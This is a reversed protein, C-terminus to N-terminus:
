VDCDQPHPFHGESAPCAFDVTEGATSSSGRETKSGMMLDREWHDGAIKMLIKLADMKGMKKMKKTNVKQRAQRNSTPRSIYEFINFPKDNTDTVGATVGSGTPVINTLVDDETRSFKQPIITPQLLRSIENDEPAPASLAPTTVDTLDRSASSFLDAQQGAKHETPVVHQTAVAQAPQDSVQVQDQDDQEVPLGINFVTFPRLVFHSPGASGSHQAPPPPPPPSPSPPSGVSPDRQSPLQGFLPEPQPLSFQFDTTQHSRVPGLNVFASMTGARAVPPFPQVQNTEVGRKESFKYAGSLESFVPDQRHLFHDMVVSRYLSPLSPSSFVASLGLLLPPLPGVIRM